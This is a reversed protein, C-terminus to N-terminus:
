VGHCLGAALADARGRARTTDNMSATMSMSAAMLLPVSCVKAFGPPLRTLEDVRAESAAGGDRRM